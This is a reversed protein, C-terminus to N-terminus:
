RRKVRVVHIGRGTDGFVIVDAKAGAKWGVRQPALRNGV